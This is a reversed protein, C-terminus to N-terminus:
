KILVKVGMGPNGMANVIVNYLEDPSLKFLFKSQPV